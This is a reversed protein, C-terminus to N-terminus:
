GIDSQADPPKPVRIHKFGGKGDDVAVLTPGEVLDGEAEEDCSDGDISSTDFDSLQGIGDIVSESKLRRDFRRKIKEFM